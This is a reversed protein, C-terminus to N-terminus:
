TEIAGLRRAAPLDGAGATDSAAAIEVGVGVAVGEFGYALEVGAGIASM